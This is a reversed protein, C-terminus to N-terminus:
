NWKESEIAECIVHILWGHLEQIRETRQSPIIVSHDALAKCQGGDKGLLAITLVGRSKATEITKLINASNGSTSFCVLVDGKQGYAEVQRSFISAYDWDNAICTLATADACLSIAPLARRNSRYRGTLEEALHLSDAASGGNGCTLIKNGKKLANIIVPLIKEVEPLITKCTDVLKSLDALQEQVTPM